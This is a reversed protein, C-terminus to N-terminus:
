LHKNLIIESSSNARDKSVKDNVNHIDNALYRCEQAVDEKSLKEKKVAIMEVEAAKPFYYAASLIRNLM